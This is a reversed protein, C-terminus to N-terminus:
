IGAKDLCEILDPRLPNVAIGYDAAAAVFARVMAPYSDLLTGDFDWIIHKYRM